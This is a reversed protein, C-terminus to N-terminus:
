VENRIQSFKRVYCDNTGHTRSVEGCRLSVCLRLRLCQFPVLATSILTYMSKSRMSCDYKRDGTASLLAMSQTDAHRYCRKKVDRQMQHSKLYLWTTYEEHQSVAEIIDICDLSQMAATRGRPVVKGFEHDCFQARNIPCEKCWHTYTPATRRVPAPTM